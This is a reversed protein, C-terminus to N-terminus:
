AVRVSKEWHPQFQLLAPLFVVAVSVAGDFLKRKFPIM